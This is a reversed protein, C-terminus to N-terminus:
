ELVVYTKISDSKIINKNNHIPNKCNGKHALSESIGDGTSTTTVIYECGDIIEIRRTSCSALMLILLGFIKIKM